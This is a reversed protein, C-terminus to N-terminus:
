KKQKFEEFRISELLYIDGKKTNRSMLNELITPYLNLRKSFDVLSIHVIYGQKMYLIVRNPDEKVPLERIESVEHLVNPKVKILETVLQNLKDEDDWKTILPGDIYFKNEGKYFLGNELIPIWKDNADRFFAIPKNETVHIFLQGPFEKIIEVDKIEKIGLLKKKISSSSTFLYLMNKHIDATSYIEKESLLTLGTVKINTIRSISSNFYIIIALLLFFLFIFFLLKEGKKKYVKRRFQPLYPEPEM